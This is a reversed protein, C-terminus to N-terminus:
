DGIGRYSRGFNGSILGKEAQRKKQTFRKDIVQKVITKRKSEEETMEIMRTM